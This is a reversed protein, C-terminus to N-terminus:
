RMPIRTIWDLAQFTYPQTSGIDPSIKAPEVEAGQRSIHDVLRQLYRNGYDRQLQQVIMAKQRVYM